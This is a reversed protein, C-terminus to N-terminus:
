CDGAPWMEALFHWADLERGSYLYSWVIELVKIKVMRLKHVQEPSGSNTATLQGDSKKFDQLDQEHIEARMHAIESDFYSQFDTSVDLLRGQTFRFIVTPPSDLEGLMLTEFGNVAAADNTWIEVTGDMKIDSASFFNGGKITHLLRPPKELSYIQYEMCCDAEAKKIQFAALPRGDGMDVGFADLDLRSAGTTVLLEHEDWSLKAACSRTALTAAGRERAAGVHVSVGTRFTADFIGNGDHCLISRTQFQCVSLVPSFLFLLIASLRILGSTQLRVAVGTTTLFWKKQRTFITM